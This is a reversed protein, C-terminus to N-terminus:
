AGIWKRTAALLEKESRGLKKGAQSRTDSSYFAEAVEFVADRGQTQDLYEFVAGSCAYFEYERPSDHFEDYGKPAITQFEAFTARIRGGDRAMLRGSGPRSDGWMALGEAVWTPKARDGAYWQNALVHIAEHCAVDEFDSRSFSTEHLGVRGTGLPLGTSDAAKKQGRALEDPDLFPHYYAHADADGVSVGGWLKGDIQPWTLAYFVKDVGKPRPMLAFARKAGAEIRAAHAKARRADQRRFVIWTHETEIADVDAVDWVSPDFYEDIDGIHLLELPADESKKRFKAPMNEVVQQGDCGKVTHAFVLEGSFEVLGGAANRTRGSPVGVYWQGDIFGLRDFNEFRRTWRKRVDDLGFDGPEIVAVLQEVDGSALAQNLRERLAATDAETVVTGTRPKVINPGTPTAKAKTDGGSGGGGCGALVLGASGLLLTRRDLAEM